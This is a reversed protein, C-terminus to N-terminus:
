QLFQLLNQSLLRTVSAMTFQQLTLLEQLRVAAEAIDASTTEGYKIEQDLALDETRLELREMQQLAVGQVGVEDLLHNEIREIDGLRRDLASFRDANSLERSNLIDDRLSILVEFADTTGPFEVSAIGTRKIDLTNLHVLKNDAPNILVENSSFGIPQTTAGGDLSFIGDATIDVNGSFGATIATTDVFVVEGNPGLIELNTDSNTFAIEAGGNLSVTGSTGTGSTDVITLQHTGTDGIITDGGVSGTGAAIGSTGSYTSLTHQVTIDLRGTTTDTGDGPTLGTDGIIVTPERSQIQFLHDGAILAERSDDGTIHLEASTSAGVYTVKDVGDSRDIVFPETQTATGSFLYGSEDGANAVSVLQNLIGDLETALINLEAEETAQSVSLAVSRAQVFLQQAERLQVHAQNLRSKVHKVSEINTELRSLQDKQVISRRVAAPDDSPRHLRIGTSIKEQTRQLESAQRGLATTAFNVGLKSSVRLDM